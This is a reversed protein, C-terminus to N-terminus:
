SGFPDDRCSAYLVLNAARARLAAGVEGIALAHTPLWQPDREPYDAFMWWVTRGRQLGHGGFYVLAADADASRASFDALAQRIADGEANFVLQTEFGAAQLAAPVRRADFRAGPLSAVDKNAYNANILVLAIRKEGASPTVKWAPLERTKPLQALHWGGSRKQNEFALREGFEQLSLKPAKLVEVLASAFPNGGLHDRDETLRGAQGAYYFLPKAPAAPASQGSVAGGLSAAFGLLSLLVLRRIM